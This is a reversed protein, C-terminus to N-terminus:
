HPKRRKIIMASYMIHVSALFSRKNACKGILMIQCELKVRSWEHRQKSYCPNLKISKM